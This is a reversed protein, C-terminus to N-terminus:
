FDVGAFIVKNPDAKGNQKEWEAKSVWAPVYIIDSNRLPPSNQEIETPNSENDYASDSGSSCNDNQSSFFNSESELDEIDNQNKVVKISFHLKGKTFTEMEKTKKNKKSYSLHLWEDMIFDKDTSLLETPIVGEGLLKNKLIRHKYYVAFKISTTYDKDIEIVVSEGWKPKLTRKTTKTKFGQISNYEGIQEPLLLVYAKNKGNRNPSLLDEAEIITIKYNTANINKHSKEM